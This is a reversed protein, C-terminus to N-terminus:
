RSKLAAVAKAAETGITDGGSWGKLKTGDSTLKAVAPIDSQNGVKGLIRVAILRAIWSESKLAKRMSPLIENGLAIVPRSHPADVNRSVPDIGGARARQNGGIQHQGRGMAHM